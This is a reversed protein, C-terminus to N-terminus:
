NTQKGHFYPCKTKKKDGFDSKKSKRMKEHSVSLSDIKKEFIQFTQFFGSIKLGIRDFVSLFEPFYLLKFILGM